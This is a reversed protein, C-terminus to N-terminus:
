KELEEGKVVEKFEIALPFKQRLIDSFKKTENSGKGLAGSM